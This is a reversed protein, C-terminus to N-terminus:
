DIARWIARLWERLTMQRTGFVVRNCRRGGIVEPKIEVVIMVRPPPFLYCLRQYRTSGYDVEIVEGLRFRDFWLSGSEYDDVQYIHDGYQFIM